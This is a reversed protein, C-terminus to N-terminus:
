GIISVLETSMRVRDAPSAISTPLLEILNPGVRAAVTIETAGSSM